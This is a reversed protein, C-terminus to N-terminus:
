KSCAAPCCGPNTWNEGVAEITLTSFPAGVEQPLSRAEIKVLSLSQEQVSDSMKSAGGREYRDIADREGLIVRGWQQRGKRFSESKVSLGGMPTGILTIHDLAPAGNQRGAILVGVQVDRGRAAKTLASQLEAKFKATCQDVTTSAGCAHAATEWLDFGVAQIHYNGAASIYNSGFQRIKCDKTTRHQRVRNPGTWHMNLLSDGSIVIRSPTWIAVITTAGANACFGLGIMAVFARVMPKDSHKCVAM